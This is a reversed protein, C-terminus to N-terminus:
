PVGSQHTNGVSPSWPDASLSKEELFMKNLTVGKKLYGFNLPVISPEQYISPLHCRQFIRPPNTLATRLGCGQNEVEGAEAASRM